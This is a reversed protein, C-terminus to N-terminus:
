PLFVAVVKRLFNVDKWKEEQGPNNMGTKDATIRIKFFGPRFQKVNSREM